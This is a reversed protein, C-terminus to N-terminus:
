HKIRVVLSPTIGLLSPIVNTRGLFKPLLLLVDLACSESCGSFNVVSQSPGQGILISAEKPRAREGFDSCCCRCPALAQQRSHPLYSVVM